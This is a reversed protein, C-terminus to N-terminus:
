DLYLLAQYLLRNKHKFNFANRQVYENIIDDPYDFTTITTNYMMAERLKVVAEIDIDRSFQHEDIILSTISTNNSLLKAMFSVINSMAGYPRSLELKQIHKNNIFGETNAIDDGDIGVLSLEKIGNHNIIIDSDLLQKLNDGDSCHGMVINIKEASTNNKLALIVPNVIDRQGPVIDFSKIKNNLLYKITYFTDRDTRHIKYDGIRIKKPYHLNDNSKSKIISWINDLLHPEMHVTIGCSAMNKIAVWMLESTSLKSIDDITLINISENFSTSAM